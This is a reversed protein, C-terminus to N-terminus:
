GVCFRIVAAMELRAEFGVSLSKLCGQYTFLSVCVPVLDQV